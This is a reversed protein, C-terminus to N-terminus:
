ETTTIGSIARFMNLYEVEGVSGSGGRRQIEDRKRFVHVFCPIVIGYGTAGGIINETEYSNRVVEFVDFPKVVPFV